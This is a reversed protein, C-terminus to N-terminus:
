EFQKLFSYWPDHPTEMFVDLFSLIQLIMEEPLRILQKNFLRHFIMFLQEIRIKMCTCLHRFISFSFPVLGNFIEDHVFIIVSEVKRIVEIKDSVCVINTATRKWKEVRPFHVGFVPKINKGTAILKTRKMEMFLHIQWINESPYYRLEVEPLHRDPKWYHFYIHYTLVEEKFRCDMFFTEADPIVDRRDM